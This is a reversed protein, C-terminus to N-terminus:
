WGRGASTCKKSGDRFPLSRQSRLVDTDIFRCPVPVTSGGAGMAITRQSNQAGVGGLLDGADNGNSGLVADAHMRDRPAFVPSVAVGARGSFILHDDIQPSHVSDDLEIFFEAVHDDFGSHRLPLQVDVKLLAFGFEPHVAGAGPRIRANHAVCEIASEAM